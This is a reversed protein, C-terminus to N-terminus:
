ANDVAGVDPKSAVGSVVEQMSLPMGGAVCEMTLIRGEWDDENVAYIPVVRPTVGKLFRQMQPPSRFYDVARTEAEEPTGYFVIKSQKSSDPDGPYLAYDSLDGDLYRGLIYEDIVPVDHASVAVHTTTSVIVLPVINFDNSLKVGFRQVDAAFEERHEELAKAKRLVQEAAGIVTRRHMAVGKADTPELICKSEGVFVTNGISFVLDIQEERESTPHFTYDAEICAAVKSLVTSDEIANKAVTRIHAEFAPGRRALEIKAQRMWVDVLRRLNPSIVAAFIPSLTEPGVPVLPQAWIEQGAHGRYTLFELLKLAKPRAIDAAAVIADVLATVQLTPAYDPMWVHPRDDERNQEHRRAIGGILLHAAGAVVMWANILDSLSADALTPQAENVLEGYYHELALTRQVNLEQLFESAVGQRSVQIVQRKNTKKIGTVDRM